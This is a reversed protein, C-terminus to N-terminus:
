EVQVSVQSMRNLQQNSSPQLSSAELLQGRHGMAGLAELLEPMDAACVGRAEFGARLKEFLEAEIQQVRRKTIGLVEALEAQTLLKDDM